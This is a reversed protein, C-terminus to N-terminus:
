AAKASASKQVMKPVNPVVSPLEFGFGCREAWERRFGVNDKVEDYLDSMDRGAHGMWYKYLRPATRCTRREPVSITGM